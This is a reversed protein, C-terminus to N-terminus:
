VNKIGGLQNKITVLTKETQANKINSDWQNFIVEPLSKSKLIQYCETKLQNLGQSSNGNQNESIFKVESKIEPNVEKKSLMEVWPYVNIPEDAKKRWMLKKKKDNKNECWVNIAYEEKYKKIFQPDWLETSVGLDKCCRVLCNSKAGELATAWTMNPNNAIYMQEGTSRAHYRGNIFLAGDYYVTSRENDIIQNILILSWAGIGFADNLIRRYKIEPLFIIGDHSRIEIDQKNVAQTLIMIVRDEFPEIAINEYFEKFTPQKIVIRQDQDSYQNNITTVQENM